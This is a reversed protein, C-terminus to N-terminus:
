QLDIGLTTVNGALVVSEIEFPDHSTLLTHNASTANLHPCQLTIKLSIQLSGEDVPKIGAM